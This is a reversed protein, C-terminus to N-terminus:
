AWRRYHWEPVKAAGSALRTGGVHILKSARDHIVCPLASEGRWWTASAISGGRRRPMAPSRWPRSKHRRPWWLWGWCTSGQCCTRAAKPHTVERLVFRYGALRALKEVKPWDEKPVAGLNDNIYTVHNKLMFDVASDFSWNRGAMYQYNGFWEFVVPAKKWQQAFGEVAAYRKSGIWNKEHWDSGVGDRRFGTGRALCYALAEVDDSMCVLPTKKFSELYM